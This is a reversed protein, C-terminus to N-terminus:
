ASERAPFEDRAAFGSRKKRKALCQRRLQTLEREADAKDLCLYRTSWRYAFGLRNLEDLLGPWTSTPFGRVSVVRLQQAGLMPALGGSLLADSLLADLCICCCWATSAKSTTAPPMLPRATRMM